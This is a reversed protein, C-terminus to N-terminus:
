LNFGVSGTAFLIQTGGGDKNGPDVGLTHEIVSGKAVLQPASYSKM